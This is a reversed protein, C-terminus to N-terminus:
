KIGKNMIKYITDGKTNPGHHFIALYLADDKVTFYYPTIGSPILHSLDEWDGKVFNDFSKFRILKNKDFDTKGAYPKCFYSSAYWYGDFFEVDNLVLGTREWSGAAGQRKSPDFSDYIKFEKKDWDVIEVVRGKSSGIAYLKGKVLSIARSYGHTPVKLASENEGIATFRFVTGSNPNIAYIWSSESDVIIDHPRQLQVGAISKTEAYIEAKSLDKVAVIRHNDTDNIYYLKDKPNYAVSHLGKLALPSVKFLEDKKNRYVIRNNKLDSIIEQEGPGFAIHTPWKFEIPDQESIYNEAVLSSKVDALLAFNFIALFSLTHLLPLKM